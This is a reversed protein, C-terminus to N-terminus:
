SRLKRRIRELAASVSRTSRGLMKATERRDRGELLLMLVSKEYPTLLRDLLRQFARNEEATIVKDEPDGGASRVRSLPLEDHKMRKGANILRNRVCIMAYLGFSVGRGERWTMAAHYLAIVAEQMLDDAEGSAGSEPMHKRVSHILMPRYREMLEIFATEQDKRFSRLLKEIPEDPEYTRYM